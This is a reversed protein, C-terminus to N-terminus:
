STLKLVLDRLDKLPYPKTLSGAFGHAISDLMVPSASHGSSVIAIVNPNLKKLERLTEVGDLAGGLSLDVMVASHPAGSKVAEGYIRVGDEGADAFEVKFGMSALVEGVLERVIEEDDIVLIKKDLTAM